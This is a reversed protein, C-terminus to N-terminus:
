AVGRPWFAGVVVLVRARLIHCLDVGLERAEVLPVLKVTKGVCAICEHVVRTRAIASFRRGVCPLLADCKEGLM